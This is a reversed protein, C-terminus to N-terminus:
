LSPPFLLTGSEPAEREFGVLWAQQQRCQKFVIFFRAWAYASGIKGAAVWWGLETGLHEGVMLAVVWPPAVEWEMGGDAPRAELTGGEDWGLRGPWWGM